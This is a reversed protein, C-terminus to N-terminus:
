FINKVESYFRAQEETMEVEIWNGDVKAAVINHAYISGTETFDGFVKAILTNGDCKEVVIAEWGNRMRLRTGKKLQDARMKINETKSLLNEGAYYEYLASVDLNISKGM